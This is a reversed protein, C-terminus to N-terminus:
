HRLNAFPLSGYIEEFQKFLISELEEPNENLKATKWAILFNESNQLQWVYRGGWHGVPKGSGFDLFTKLRSRLKKDNDNAKGIYIVHTNKVWKQHLKEIDVTPNKGKFSGGPNETLFIPLGKIKRLVIYIGSNEPILSIDYRLNKIKIFGQFGRIRLGQEQFDFYKDKKYKLVKLKNLTNM